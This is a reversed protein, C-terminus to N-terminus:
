ILLRSVDVADEAVYLRKAITEIVGITISKLLGLLQLGIDFPM